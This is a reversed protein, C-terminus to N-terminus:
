QPIGNDIWNKLKALMCASSDNWGAQPVLPMRVPTGEFLVSFLWGKSYVTQLGGASYSSYDYGSAGGPSHCSSNSTGCELDIIPKINNSGSSYTVHLSDCAGSSIIPVPVPATKNECAYFFEVMVCITFGIYIKLKM